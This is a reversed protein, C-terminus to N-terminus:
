RCAVFGNGTSTQDDDLFRRLYEPLSIQDILFPPLTARKLKQGHERLLSKSPGDHFMTVKVRFAFRIGRHRRGAHAELLFQRKREAPQDTRAVKGAGVAEVQIWVPNVD